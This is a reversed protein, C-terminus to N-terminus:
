KSRVHVPFQSSVATEQTKVFNDWSAVRFSYWCAECLPSSLISPANKNRNVKLVYKSQILKTIIAYIHSMFIVSFHRHASTLIRSWFPNVLNNATIYCYIYCYTPIHLLLTAFLFNSGKISDLQALFLANPQFEKQIFMSIKFNIYESLVM